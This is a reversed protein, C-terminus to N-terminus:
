SPNTVPHPGSLCEEREGSAAFAGRRAVFTQTLMVWALAPPPLPLLLVSHCSQRPGCGGLPRAWGASLVPQMQCSSM